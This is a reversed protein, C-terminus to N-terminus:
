GCQLGEPCYQIEVQGKVTPVSEGAFYIVNNEMEYAWGDPGGAPPTCLANYSEAPAGECATRDITSCKSLSADPVNCPYKVTVVISAPDPTDELKFKRKLGVANTALKKLTASFDADCISGVEGGTLDSLAKYRIGPTAGCSNTPVGGMIAATTVTGDNGVGKATEFSRWFYRVDQSSRDEEDTVFVLYLYAEPRLFDVPSSKDCNDVCAPPSMDRRCAAKCTDRAMLKPANAAAQNRLALEAAELGVEYPSGNTGVRVNAAFTTVVNPTRPTIIKPSGVFAGKEKFIDTTTVAIRYDIGSKQFVEMFAQFNKAVNEQRPQMSGSNDVVWLVDINSASEQSYADIRVNPPLVTNLKPKECALPAFLLPLIILALRRM